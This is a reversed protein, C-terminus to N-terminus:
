LVRHCEIDDWLVFDIDDELDDCKESKDITVEESVELSGIQGTCKCQKQKSCSAFAVMAVVAIALFVKKM